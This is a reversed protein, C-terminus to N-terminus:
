LPLLNPVHDLLSVAFSDFTQVSVESGHSLVVVDRSARGRAVTLLM